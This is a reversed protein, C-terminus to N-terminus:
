RQHTALTERFTEPREHILPVRANGQIVDSRELALESFTIDSREDNFRHLTFTTFRGCCIEERARLFETAFVACKENAVFNLTTEPPGALHEPELVPVKFRVDDRQRFGQTATVDRAPCDDRPAVNVLLCETSHVPTYNVRSREAPVIEGHGTAQGREFHNILLIQDLAGRFHACLQHFSDISQAGFM